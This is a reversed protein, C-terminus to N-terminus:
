WGDKDAYEIRRQEVERLHAQLGAKTVHCSHGLRKRFSKELTYFDRLMRNILRMSLSYLGVADLMLALANLQTLTCYSKVIVDFDSLRIDSSTSGKLIRTWEEVKTSGKSPESSEPSETVAIFLSHLALGIAVEKLGLHYWRLVNGDTYLESPMFLLKAMYDIVDDCGNGCSEQDTVSIESHQEHSRFSDEILMTTWHSTRSRRTRESISHVFEDM